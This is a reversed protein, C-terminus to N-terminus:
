RHQSLKESWILTHGIDNIIGRVEFYRTRNFTSGSTWVTEPMSYIVNNLFIAQLGNTCSRKLYEIYFQSFLYLNIVHNLNMGM